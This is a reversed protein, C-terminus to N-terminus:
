NSQKARYRRLKRTLDELTRASSDLIEVLEETPVPSAIDPVRKRPRTNSHKQAYRKAEKDLRHLKIYQRIARQAAPPAPRTLPKILPIIGTEMFSATEELTSAFGRTRALLKRASEIEDPNRLRQRSFLREIDPLAMWAPRERAPQLFSAAPLGLHKIMGVLRNPWEKILWFALVLFWSRALPSRSEFSGEGLVAYGPFTALKLNPVIWNVVKEGFSQRTILTILIRLGRLFMAVHVPINDGVTVWHDRLGLEVFRQLELVSEVLNDPTEQINPFAVNCHGCYRFTSAKHRQYLKGSVEIYSFPQHCSSCENSLLGHEPCCPFFAYRWQKRYYPVEDQSFCSSCFPISAFRKPLWPKTQTLPAIWEYNGHNQQTFVLGEDSLYSGAFIRDRSVGSKTTLADFLAPAGIQDLDFGTGPVELQELRCFLSLPM